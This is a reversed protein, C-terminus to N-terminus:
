PRVHPDHIAVLAARGVGTLTLLYSAAGSGYLTRRAMFTPRMLAIVCQVTLPSRLSERSKPFLLADRNLWDEHLKQSAPSPPAPLVTGGVGAPLAM